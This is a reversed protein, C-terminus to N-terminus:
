GTGPCELSADVILAIFEIAEYISFLWVTSNPAKKEEEVHAFRYRFTGDGLDYTKHENLAQALGFVHDQLDGEMTRGTVCMASVLCDDPVPRGEHHYFLGRTIREAVAHIRNMDIDVRLMTGAYLGFPSMRAVEQMHSILDTRLGRAQPRELSRWISPLVAQAAPHDAANVHMAVMNRFYEDERPTGRNCRGCIPVTILDPPRPPPFLGKPPVHDRTTLRSRGCYACRAVRKSKM